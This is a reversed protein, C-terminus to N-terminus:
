NGGAKFQKLLADFDNNSPANSSGVPDDDTEVESAVDSVPTEENVNGATAVDEATRTPRPKLSIEEDAMEYGKVGLNGEYVKIEPATVIVANLGVGSGYATEFYIVEVEVALGQALENGNLHVKHLKGQEDKKYVRIESGKSIVSLYRKGKNEEKKSEYVRSGLYAALNTASENTKDFIFADAINPKDIVVTLKYYPDKSPYKTYQNARALEEGSIKTAIHCYDVTGSFRVTEKAKIKLESLKMIINREARATNSKPMRRM